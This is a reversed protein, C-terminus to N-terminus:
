ILPYLNVYLNATDELLLLIIIKYVSELCFCM